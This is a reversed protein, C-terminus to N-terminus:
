AASTDVILCRKSTNAYTCAPNSTDIYNDCFLDHSTDFYHDGFLDHSTDFYYDCSLDHSTHNVYEQM